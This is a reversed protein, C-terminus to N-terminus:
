NNLLREVAYIANNTLQRQWCANSSSWKFANHKLNSIMEPGPKGDFFLQIRDAQFNKVVKVGNILSEESEKESKAEKNKRVKEAIAPLQWVKHRKTMFPKDHTDNYETILILCEKVLEVEGNYALREIMSYCNVVSGWAIKKSIEKKLSEWRENTKQEPSKAAEIRKNIAKFANERWEQFDSYKKSEANNAREARRVPFNSPGAIMTSICNSKAHLWAFLYKKYNDIYREKESEPIKQLDDNLQSEYTEVISKARNEPDFSTGLHARRGAEYLGDIKILNEQKEM